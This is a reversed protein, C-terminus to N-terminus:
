NDIFIEWRYTKNVGATQDLTVRIGFRNPGLDIAILKRGNALGGDNGAYSAYDQLLLAGGATIRYYVRFVTTDGDAALMNDLDVYLTRPLFCGLPANNIYLTQEQGSATLLGGTEQLTLIANVLDFINETTVDVAATAISQDVLAPGRSVLGM